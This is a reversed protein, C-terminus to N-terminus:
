RKEQNPRFRFSYLDADKMLFRIRVAKGRWAQLDQGGSWRVVRDVSDGIIEPCDELRHGPLPEGKEDQLEVKVFGAAGTAFNLELESGDFTVPRTLLSGGAYPAHVSTFGDLRLTLREVHISPQGYHRVVFLSLETDSTQLMGLAPYNARAVWNRPDLGPRIFSELFTRRYHLGGRTSLLVADSDDNKLEAYNRPNDLDIAGVQEDTLARRGPNFRAAIGLYIHPARFYPQTQSIYIHEPPAGDFEMDSPESWKRFDPSTARTVWRVGNRFTRFYCLYNTEHASWFVLNQSDFQGKTILPRDSLPRWHIGDASLYGFLGGAGTGGVAKFREAQPVGPRSDLFPCFNHTVTKPEVLFVNNDKTGAVEFLGLNPRTWTIGDRSEAVCSVEHAEESADGRSNTPRGRYYLLRRDGDQLVTVYGSVIGEWPRDLRLAVGAPQPHHLQLAAGELREILEQDVFIERRTGLTIPEAGQIPMSLLSATLTLLSLWRPSKPLSDLIM